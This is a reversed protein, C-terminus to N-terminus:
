IDGLDVIISGARISAGMHKRKIYARGNESYVATTIESTATANLVCRLLPIVGLYANNADRAHFNCHYVGDDANAAYTNSYGTFGSTDLGYSLRTENANVTAGTVYSGNRNKLLLLYGSSSGCFTHSDGIYGLVAAIDYAHRASLFPCDKDNFIGFGYCISFDKYESISDKTTISPLIYFNEDDGVLVWSRIGNIATDGLVYTHNKGSNDGTAYLWKSWGIYASGSGATGTGIWNKTPLLPDFPAQNASIDDISSCSELIGVKAFKANSPTHLPDCTDDVRLFYPNKSTNKAQFVARGTDSFPMSWGIPALKCNMPETITQDPLDVLFEVTNPTTLGLIKFEGNLVTQSSGSIEIWQFMQLNHNSPFTAIAVGNSVDISYFIQTGFGDILCSKIVNLLSGWNNNLEPANINESSFWKVQGSM